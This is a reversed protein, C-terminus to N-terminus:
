NLADLAAKRKREAETSTDRPKSQRPTLKAAPAAKRPQLAAAQQTVAVPQAAAVAWLKVSKASTACALRKGDPSFAVSSITGGATMSLMLEGTRVDWVKVRGDADEGGCAVLRGDPSFAISTVKSSPEYKFTARPARGGVNWLMLEGYNGTALTKSDPSFAVASPLNPVPMEYLLVGKRVDWLHVAFPDDAAALLSGNPSLAVSETKRGHDKLVQSEGTQTNWLRVDNAGTALLKGDPSLAASWLPCNPIQLKRAGPDPMGGRMALPVVACDDQSYNVLTLLKGDPSAAIPRAAGGLDQSTALLRGSGADWFRLTQGDGTALLGSDPSFAVGYVEADHTLTLGTEVNGTTSLLNNILPTPVTSPSSAVDKGGTGTNGGGGTRTNGAVGTASDTARFVTLKLVVGVVGIVLLAALSGVLVAILAPHRRLKPTPDPARDPTAIKTLDEPEDDACDPMPLTSADQSSRHALAGGAERLARRMEEASAVRQDRRLAMARSLVDAVERSVPAGVHDAPWLPDPKGNLLADARELANPPIVGTMLHYLTAGLSYLDSRADTGAGQMQELPAYAPTGGLISESPQSTRSGYGKALGFDLLIIQGRGTPKLNHPKIDRHIVPPHRTHLYDLADLIQDAWALVQAAPFSGAECKRRMADLDEGEVYQMVLFQGGSEAFHDSVRPLAPHSLRALLRAEREFQRRLEEEEFSTEKIAVVADLREDTAEYVTGMGGRALKRVVRYRGQLLTDPTLM